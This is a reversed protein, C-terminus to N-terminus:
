IALARTQVITKNRALHLSPMADQPCEVACRQSAFHGTNSDLSTRDFFDAMLTGRGVNIPVISLNVISLRAIPVQRSDYMVAATSEGTSITHATMHLVM